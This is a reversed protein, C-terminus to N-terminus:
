PTFAGSALVEGFKRALNRYVPTQYKGRLVLGMTEVFEEEDALESMLRFLSPARFRAYEWMAHAYEHLITDLIIVEIQDLVGQEDALQPLKENVWITPRSRFQSGSRYQGLGTPDSLARWKVVVQDEIGAASLRELAQKRCRATMDKWIKM